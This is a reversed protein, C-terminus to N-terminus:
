EPRRIIMKCIRNGQSSFKEEYETMVNGEGMVDRHLDRTSAMIQWGAAQASELSFTFLEQNDTKFEVTGSAGLIKEYCRLFRESTLRRDAHREKPWPDSFNLYIREVEGPAFIEPLLVADQCLFLFNSPIQGEEIKEIARLLVSTYREIGIYNYEPHRAAMERLFRGKGMGVEIHIPHENGFQRRWAGCLMHPEQIVFPSSAVVGEARPINRLRM